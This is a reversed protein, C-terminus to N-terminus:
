CPIFLEFRVCGPSPQIFSVTGGHIRAAQSVIYLGIGQGEILQGMGRVKLAFIDGDLSGADLLANTVSFVVGLRAEDLAVEAAIESGPPSYKIANDLLNRMALRMLGPDITVFVPACPAIFTIRGHMEVPCDQMAFRALEAFETEHRAESEQRQVLSVGIIANSLALTISDIIAQIRYVLSQLLSNGARDPGIELQALIAQIAAQANNLPHRVEHTLLQLLMLRENGAAALQQNFEVLARSRAGISAKLRVSRQRLREMRGTLLGLFAIQMFMTVSILVLLGVIQQLASGVFASDEGFPYAGPIRWLMLVISVGFTAIMLKRAPLGRWARNTQMAHLGAAALVAGAVCLLLLRFPTACIHIVAIVAVVSALASIVPKKRFVQSARASLCLYKMFAAVLALSSNVANIMTPASPQDLPYSYLSVAALLNSFVWLWAIRRHRADAVFMMCISTTALLVTQAILVSLIYDIQM